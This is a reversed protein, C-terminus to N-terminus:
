CHATVSAAVANAFETVEGKANIFFADVQAKDQASGQGRGRIGRALIYFKVKPETGSPRVVIKSGDDLIYLLMNSGPLRAKDGIIRYDGHWFMPVAVNGVTYYGNHALPDAPPTDDFLLRGDADRCERRGTEPNPTYDLAAIVDKGAIERLPRKRLAAMIARIVDNGSAGEYSLSITEERAYGYRQYIDELKGILTKGRARYFGAMEVFMAGVTIADKDKVYDGILSGYSEEGGFLCCLSYRSLLQIRQQRSLRTYSGGACLPDNNRQASRWADAAYLALKEGLYKFGVLPEVTMIGYADAIEKALDTSVLTKSILSQPPLTGDRASLQSLIYDTLLVLQQNGTLLYYGEHVASDHKFRLREEIGLRVGVGIRDADPDTAILIDAETENAQKIAEYLTKKEEPNPKPCTPFLGDPICQAAVMLLNREIDFGRRALVRPLLRQATGNLSSFVVRVKPDIKDTRFFGREDVWIANQNEKEIYASDIDPGVVAIYGRSVAEDYPMSVVESYDAITDAIAQVADHVIQGGYTDYPKFGNDSAPNHSATFVGGAYPRIGDVETIAFSLEPTPAVSDFLYVRIGHAAYIGAAEQVLFGARGTEPDYSGRRSDYALIVAKERGLAKGNDAYAKEIYRAHAEVGMGLIIKNFLATGIGLRGRVGATGFRNVEFFRDDLEKWAGRAVLQCIVDGVREGDIVVAAFSPHLWSLANTCTSQKIQGEACAQELRACIARYVADPMDGM